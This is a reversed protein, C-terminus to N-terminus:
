NAANKTKSANKHLKRKASNGQGCSQGRVSFDAGLQPCHASPIRQLDDACSQEPVIEGVRFEGSAQAPALYQGELPVIRVKVGPREADLTLDVPGVALQHDGLRLRFRGQASDHRRGCFSAALSLAM